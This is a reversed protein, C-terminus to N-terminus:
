DDYIVVDEIIWEDGTAPFYIVEIYDDEELIPKIQSKQPKTNENWNKDAVKKKRYTTAETTKMTAESGDAQRITVAHGDAKVVKGSTTEACASVSVTLGLGMIGMMLYKKM